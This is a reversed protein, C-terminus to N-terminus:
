FSWKIKLMKERGKRGHISQHLANEITLRDQLLAFPGKVVVAFVSNPVHYNKGEVLEIYLTKIKTTGLNSSSGIKTILRQYTSLKLM